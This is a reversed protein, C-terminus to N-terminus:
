SGLYESIDYITLQRAEYHGLMLNCSTCLLGRVQGTSHDHDVVLKATEITEDKCLGCVGNQKALLDQVQNEDIGYKTALNYRRKYAKNRPDKHRDAYRLKHCAICFPWLGDKGNANKYFDAKSKESNCISCTKMTKM